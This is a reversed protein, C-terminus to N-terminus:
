RGDGEFLTDEERGISSGNDDLFEADTDWHGDRKLLVRQVGARSRVSPFEQLHFESGEEDVACLDGWIPRDHDVVTILDFNLEASGILVVGWRPNVHVDARAEGGDVVPDNDGREFFGCVVDRDCKISLSVFHTGSVGDLDCPVPGVINLFHRSVIAEAGRVDSILDDPELGITVDTNEDGIFEGGGWSLRPVKLAVRV